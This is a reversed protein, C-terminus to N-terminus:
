AGDNRFVVFSFGIPTVLALTNTTCIVQFQTSNLQNVQTVVPVTSAFATAASAIVIYPTDEVTGMTITFVGVSNLQVSNVNFTGALSVVGESILVEGFAQADVITRAPTLKSQFFASDSQGTASVDSTSLHGNINM